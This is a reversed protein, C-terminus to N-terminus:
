CGGKKQCDGLNAGRSPLLVALLISMNQRYRANEPGKPRRMKMSAESVLADGYCLVAQIEMNDAGSRTAIQKGQCVNQSHTPQDPDFLFVLRGKPQNEALVAVLPTGGLHAPTALGAVLEAGLKDSTNATGFPRGLLVTAMAGDKALYRVLHPTYYNDRQDQYVMGDTLMCGALSTFIMVALFTKISGQM